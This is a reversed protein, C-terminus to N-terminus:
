EPAFSSFETLLVPGRRTSPLKICTEAVGLRAAAYKRYFCQNSRDPVESEESGVQIRMGNICSGGCLTLVYEANVDFIRRGVSASENTVECIM